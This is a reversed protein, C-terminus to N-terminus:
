QKPAGAQETMMKKVKALMQRIEGADQAAPAEKLYAELQAAAKDWARRRVHLNFLYKRVAVLQGKGLDIARTMEKEARDYDPAPKQMLALGLNLHGMPFSDDLKNGQELLPVAEDFKQHSVCLMGLNIYPLAFKPNVAIAKEYAAQAEAPKNMVALQEGFKNLAHLYDPFIRLAQQFEAAAEEFKNEGARKLGKEYAKKAEKPVEQLDAVTLLREKPRSGFDSNKEKLYVQATVTRSFTGYLEIVEQATEYTRTDSPIVIKYVGNPLSRFEFNGVSDSFAEGAIGGTNLELVVRIRQDPVQGSPMFIKGRLTHSAGANRGGAGGGPNAGGTSGQAWAVVALVICLLVSKLVLNGLHEIHGTM